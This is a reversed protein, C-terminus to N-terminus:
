NTNFHKIIKNIYIQINFTFILLVHVRVYLIYVHEGM